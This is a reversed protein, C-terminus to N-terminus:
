YSQFIFVEGNSSFYIRGLYLFYLLPTSLIQNGLSYDRFKFQRFVARL